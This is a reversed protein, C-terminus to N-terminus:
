RIEARLIRKAAAVAKGYEPFETAEIERVWAPLAQQRMLRATSRYTAEVRYGLAQQGTIHVAVIDNEGILYPTAM